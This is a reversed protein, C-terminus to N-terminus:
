QLAVPLAVGFDRVTATLTAGGATTTTQQSIVDVALRSVRVQMSSGTQQTWALYPVGGLFALRPNPNFGTTGPNLADGVLTWTSGTWRAVHVEGGGHSEDEWVVYPTAGVGAVSPQGAHKTPDLNLAGGVTTWASGTWRAVHVQEVSGNYEQWAVYPTGDVSSIRSAQAIKTPDVNLGGGVDAWAAGDWSKVRVQYATGVGNSDERWTVYPTGGVDAIHPNFGARTPDVNLAAGASTWASGDWRKVRVQAVNGANAEDWVVYPTGGVSAMGPENANKGTDVNLAGGAAVWSSGTWRKVRVQYVSGNTETWAVWPTGAVDVLQPLYANRSADVNLVGGVVTWASGNWSAVHVQYAGAGPDERWALWPAGGIMALSPSTAGRTADLNVVGSATPSWGAYARPALTSASLAAFAALIVLHRRMGALDAREFASAPPEVPTTFL